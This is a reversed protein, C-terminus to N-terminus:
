LTAFMCFFLFDPLPDVSKWVVTYVFGQRIWLWKLEVNKNQLKKFFFDRISVM